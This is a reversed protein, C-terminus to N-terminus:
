MVKCCGNYLTPEEWDPIDPQNDVDVSIDKFPDEGIENSYDTWPVGRPFPCNGKKDNYIGDCRYTIYNSGKVERDGPARYSPEIHNNALAKTIEQLIPAWDKEPQYFAYITIQKGRQVGIPEDDIVQEEMVKGQPVVKSNYVRHEILIDKVLNWGEKINNPEKDNISIHFKWGCTRLAYVGDSENSKLNNLGFSIFFKNKSVSSIFDDIEIHDKRFSPEM